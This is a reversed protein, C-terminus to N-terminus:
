SGIVIFFFQSNIAVGGNDRILIQATNTTLTTVVATTAASGGFITVNAYLLDVFPTSFNIDYNGTSPRASSFGANTGFPNGAIDVTGCLVRTHAVAITANQFGLPSMNLPGAYNPSTYSLDGNSLLSPVTVQHSFQFGTSSNGQILTTGAAIQMGNSIGIGQNSGIVLSDTIGTVITNNYGISICRSNTGYSGSGGVIVNFSSSTDLSAGALEGVITNDTGTALNIGAHRGIFTNNTGTTNGLGAAQGFATCQGTTLANLASTGVATCDANGSQIQQLTNIGIAVCSNTNGAAINM